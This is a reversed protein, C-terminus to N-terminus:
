NVKRWEAQGIEEYKQGDTCHAWENIGRTGTQENYGDEMALNLSGESGCRKM